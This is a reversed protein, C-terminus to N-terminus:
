RATWPNAPGRRGPRAAPSQSWSLRAGDLREEVPPQVPERQGTPRFVAAPVPPSISAGPRPTGCSRTRRGGAPGPTRRLAPRQCGRSPRGSWTSRRKPRGCLRLVGAVEPGADVAADARVVLPHHQVDEILVRPDLLVKLVAPRHPDLGHDVAGAVQAARGGARGRRVGTWPGHRLRRMSSASRAALCRGRSGLRRASRAGGQGRRRLVGTSRNPSGRTM